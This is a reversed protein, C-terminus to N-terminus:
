NDLSCSRPNSSDSRHLTEDLLATTTEARYRIGEIASDLESCSSKNFHVFVEIGAHSAFTQLFCQIQKAATTDRTQGDLCMAVARPQGPNRDLWTELWARVFLPLDDDGHASLVVIDSDLVEEVKAQRLVPLNLVDFRCLSLRFNVVMNLHEVIQDILQKSSLATSADEYLLLVQLSPPGESLGFDRMERDTYASMNKEPRGRTGNRANGRTSSTM